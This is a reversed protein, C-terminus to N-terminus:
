VDIEVSQRSIPPPINLMNARCCKQRKQKINSVSPINRHLLHYHFYKFTLHAQTFHTIIEFFLIQEKFMKNYYIWETCKWTINEFCRKLLPLYVCRRRRQHNPFSIMSIQSAWLYHSCEKTRFSHTIGSSHADVVNWFNKGGDFKSKM